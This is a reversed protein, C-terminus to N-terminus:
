VLPREVGPLLLRLLEKAKRDRTWELIEDHENKATLYKLFSDLESDWRDSLIALTVNRRFLLRYIYRITNWNYTTRLLEQIGEEWLCTSGVYYAPPASTVQGRTKEPGFSALM